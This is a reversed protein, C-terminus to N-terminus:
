SSGATMYAQIQRLSINGMDQGDIWARHWNVTHELAQRLCWRPRWGLNMHAHTSDLRLLGAEHYITDFEVYDVLDKLYPVEIVALGNSKLLIAIGAVVGNLDAVHALVNNAHIIDAQTGQDRLQQALERGFFESITRIGRQLAVKAINQAPEIGLVPINEQNYFQLLYGDNSAIEVVLSRSDLPHEEMIRKSISQANQVVTDAFSSFYLYDRFLKEPSVTETLQVLSCERCFAVELPYTEETESLNEETLLANALPTCGLSLVVELDNGGCSRCVLFSNSM